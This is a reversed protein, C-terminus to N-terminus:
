PLSGNGGDVHSPLGGPELPLQPRLFLLATSAPQFFCVILVMTNFVMTGYLEDNPPSPLLSPNVKPKRHLGRYRFAMLMGKVNQLEPQSDRSHQLEIQIRGSFLSFEALILNGSPSGSQRYVRVHFM